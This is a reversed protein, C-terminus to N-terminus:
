SAPLKTWVVDEGERRDIFGTVAGAADRQFLKRTRLQDGVFLVDRLEALLPVPSRGERGGVLVGNQLAIVYILGPGAQYRGVYDSLTAAPLKVPPPQQLQYNTHLMQLKWGSPTQRWTETMYFTAHLQQGYFTETEADQQWVTAVDGHRTVNYKVIWIHGTINSPLPQLQALFQAKTMLVNNEDFYLADPAMAADWVARDGPAYADILAQDQARLTQEVQADTMPASAALAAAFAALMPM